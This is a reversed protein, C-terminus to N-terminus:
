TKAGRLDGARRRPIELARVKAQTTKRCVTNFATKM